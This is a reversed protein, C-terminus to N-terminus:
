ARACGGACRCSLVCGTVSRDRGIGGEPTTATCSYPEEGRRRGRETESPEPVRERRAPTRPTTAGSGPSCPPSAKTALTMRPAWGLEDRARTIDAFTADVDGLPVPASEVRPAFGPRQPSPRSSRRPSRDAGGLRPQVRSVRATARRRAGRARRPRHRRRAHLRAADLRRRLAHDARGALAARMFRTIAMEPRQRPGYVTFFRLAACRMAPRTAASPERGRARRRAQEGRVAVGPGRGARGRPRAAADRQRLGVLEVRLPLARHRARARADQVVATGEVNVRAYRAPDAFSPRVGALGALHLVRARRRAVLPAM